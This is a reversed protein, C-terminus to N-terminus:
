ASDSRVPSAAPRVGLSVPAAEFRRPPQEQWRWSRGYASIPAEITRTLLWGIGVCVPLAALTVGWQAPTAIDPKADLILGHMLGLIPMHTLYVAYSTTGFFRLVPAHLRIAEPAGRVLALLFHACALSVVAHGLAAFLLGDEGGIIRLLATAALLLPVAGRLLGDRGDLRPRGGTVVLAALVGCALGDARTPLLMLAALTWDPALGLIAARSGAALLAVAVLAAALKPRPVLAFVLPLLLYFHEEVGLTWTPALWEAGVRGTAVMLANQSFTLYSWLPFHEEDRTWPRDLVALLGFVAVVCVMYIPLTRCARRVFFVTLFNAHHGKEVILKGVLYGSLVFFMDVAIWGLMAIRFGHPVEGFYHSLVVFITMVGRLGDLALVRGDQVPGPKPEAADAPSPM